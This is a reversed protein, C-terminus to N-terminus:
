VVHVRGAILYAEKRAAGRIMEGADFAVLWGAELLTAIAKKAAPRERLARIPARQLIESPLIEPHPWVHLLWERLAEAKEIEASVTAADALRAAESLYYQALTIGNAMHQASVAKADLNDWLILVGAIRVAQEAAKSAYGKIHALEGGQIQALEITDAFAVLLTRADADLDLLRPTLERTHTDMPLPMDLVHRLRASYQDLARDDYRSLSQLRTGITSPPECVLFRPLFGTDSAMPDAMFTRAVGPQVMLHM